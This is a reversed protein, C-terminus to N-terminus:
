DVEQVLARVVQQKGLRRASDAMEAMQQERKAVNREQELMLRVIEGHDRM